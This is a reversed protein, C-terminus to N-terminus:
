CEVERESTTRQIITDENLNKEDKWIGFLEDEQRENKVVAEDLEQTLEKLVGVKTKLDLTRFFDVYNDITLSEM